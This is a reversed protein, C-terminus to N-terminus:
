REPEAATIQGAVDELPGVVAAVLHGGTAGRAPIVPRSEGRFPLAVYASPLHSLSLAPAAKRAAGPVNSYWDAGPAYIGLVPNPCSIRNSASSLYCPVLSGM